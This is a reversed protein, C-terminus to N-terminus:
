LSGRLQPVHLRNQAGPWVQVLPAHVPQGGPVVLQLPRQTSMLLSGVLQPAHLRVQAGLWNQAFRVQVLMQGMGSECHGSPEHTSRPFSGRLQPPQPMLQAGPAAHTLRTHVETQGGPWTFQKPVQVLVLVSLAFQPTHPSSQGM